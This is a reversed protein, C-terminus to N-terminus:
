LRKLLDCHKFGGMTTVRVVSLISNKVTALVSTKAYAFIQLCKMLHASLCVNAFM